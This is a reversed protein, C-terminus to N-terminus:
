SPLQLAECIVGHMDRLSSFPQVAASAPGLALLEVYDATHNHSTWGIGTYAHLEKALSNTLASSAYPSGRLKSPLEEADGLSVRMGTKEALLAIIAEADKLGLIANALEEASSTFKELNRFKKEADLYSKGMGNLHIGGTGHDTTVVLLTDPHENCFELVTAITDDFELQEHLLAAADNAHGAHDIRAGEIQLIFGNQNDKALNALASETMEQLSPVGTFAQRDHRRDLAYPIHDDSFLALIKDAKQYLHKTESLLRYGKKEFDHLLDRQDERGSTLFHKRGGGYLYDIERLFYQEAIEDEMGRNPVNAAFSAPTAHTIRATSVLATQLGKQKAKVLLPTQKKGDPTINISGNNVKEGGGWSSGAAASDTVLSNASTTDVLSRVHPLAYLQQWQSDKKQFIKKYHQALALVSQNMGDSVMFIVNKARTPSSASPKKSSCSIFPFAVGAVGVTQLFQKRSVKNM